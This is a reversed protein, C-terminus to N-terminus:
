PCAAIAVVPAMARDGPEHQHDEPPALLAVIVAAAAEDPSGPPGCPFTPPVQGFSMNQLSKCELNKRPEGGPEGMEFLTPDM